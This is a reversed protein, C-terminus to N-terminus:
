LFLHFNTQQQYLSISFVAVDLPFRSNLDMSIIELSVFEINSNKINNRLPAKFGMENRLKKLLSESDSIQSSDM